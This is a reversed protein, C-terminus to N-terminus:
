QGEELLEAAIGLRDAVERKAAQRQAKGKPVLRLQPDARTVTTGPVQEGTETDVLLYGDDPTGHIKCRGSDILPTFPDEPLLYETATTLCSRLDDVPVAKNDRHAEAAAILGLLGRTDSVALAVYKDASSWEGFAERDIIQPKPDPDTWQASWGDLKATFSTGTRESEETVADALATRVHKKADKVLAEIGEAQVAARMRDGLTEGPGVFLELDTGM